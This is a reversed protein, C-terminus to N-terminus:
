LQHKTNLSETGVGLPIQLSIWKEASRAVLSSPLPLNQEEELLGQM